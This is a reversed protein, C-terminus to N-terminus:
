PEMTRLRQLPPELSRLNGIDTQDVNIVARRRYGFSLIRGSESRTSAVLGAEDLRRGETDWAATATVRIPGVHGSMDGAFATARTENAGPSRKLTVRRDELWAIAGVRAVLREHGRAAKSCARSSAPPFTIPTAM